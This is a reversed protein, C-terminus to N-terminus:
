ELRARYEAPTCGQFWRHFARYFATVHAFGLLFAVESLSLSKDALYREALERRVEDLLEGHTTGEEKLRRRLTPVSLALQRAISERTVDGSRLQSIVLRRVRASLSESRRLRELLSEAHMAYAAHLSAHAHSMPADLHERTFVLANHPAGLRIRAGDFIRAYAAADTPTDHRLHVERLVNRQGTYRRAYTCAATMAFDNAAPPQPVDDTIRVEWTAFTGDELLRADQASHMLHMYRNACLIADRLTPCSRTAYELVDLDGADLSEGAKLGLAPDGTRVVARELLEMLARHRLRTDANTFDLLSIGERLLIPLSLPDAGTLRIFPIVWRLSVTTERVSV